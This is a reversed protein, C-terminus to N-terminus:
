LGDGAGCGDPSDPRVVVWEIAEDDQGVEVRLYDGAEENDAHPPLLLRLFGVVVRQAWSVPENLDHNRCGTSNMLIFKIRTKAGGAKAADCLRRTADTVLRRPPGFLGKFSLNHGLCSVVADCGRVHESMQEDDLDLVSAHVVALRERGAWGAPLGDLSRVMVKM